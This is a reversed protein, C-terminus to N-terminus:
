TFHKGLIARDPQVCMEVMGVLQSVLRLSGAVFYQPVADRDVVLRYQKCAYVIRNFLLQAQTVAKEFRFDPRVIEELSVLNLAGFVQPRGHFLAQFDDLTHAAMSRSQSNWSVYDVQGAAAAFHGKLRVVEYGAGISLQYKSVVQALFVAVM